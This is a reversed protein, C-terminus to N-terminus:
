EGIAERKEEKNSSNNTYTKPLLAFRFEPKGYPSGYKLISNRLRNLNKPEAKHEVASKALARRLGALHCRNCQTCLFIKSGYKKIGRFGFIKMRLYLYLSGLPSSLLEMKTGLIACTREMWRSFYCTPRISGVECSDICTNCRICLPDYWGKDLVDAGMPCSITCANNVPCM